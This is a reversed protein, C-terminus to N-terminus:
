RVYKGAKAFSDIIFIIFIGLFSYLILEETVNNTKQDKQEELIHIMYNLKTLLEDRNQLTNDLGVNNYYPINKLFSSNGFNSINELNKFSDINIPKDVNNVSKSSNSSNSISTFNQPFSSYLNNTQQWNSDQWKGQSLDPTQIHSNSNNEKDARKQNGVSEPNPLNMDSIKNDNNDNDYNTDNEDDDDDLLSSKHIQNIMNYVRGSNIVNNKKITKNRSTKKKNTSNDEIPAANFALYSM